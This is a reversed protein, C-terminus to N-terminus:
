TGLSERLPREIRAQPDAFCCYALWTPDNPYRDRVHQRARQMAEGITRGSTMEAYFARAFALAARDTVPWLTGVFGGCGLHVFQASWSGLRTLSFGLRGSHCSNFFILPAARRLAVAMKPSLEAVRLAGDEMLVASADAASSGAFEGHAILHLLDFEGAEFAKLVVSCRAPLLQYHSGSSELGRLVALEEDTSLPLCASTETPSGAQSAILPATGVMDLTTDKGSAGTRGRPALACIRNFSFRQAPPRGRLWHTLAYSQGWFDGEEFEGSAPNERYPKILEWPIHPEDSLVLVTRVNRRRITWYLDQLDRPLLQEFLGHGVGGLLRTVDEESADARHVLDALLGLRAQVWSSVDTKLDITGLDGDMVPLDGLEQLASFVVYQLRGPQGAFRHEFVKILLDPASPIPRATLNLLLGLPPMPRNTATNADIRAVIEPTLDLSGVPRGGQDFDIMVRGPGLKLGRLSFEVPPSSQEMPVDIEARGTGEIAFNEAAVSLRVKIALPRVEAQPLPSMFSVFLNTTWGGAFPRPQGQRTDEGSRAAPFLIVRLRYSEGVLAQDPFWIRAITTVGSVVSSREIAEEGQLPEAGAPHSAPSIPGAADRKRKGLLRRLRDKLISALEPLARSILARGTPRAIQSEARAEKEAEMKGAAERFARALEEASRPRKEPDKELCQMIVREMRPLISVRPNAERMPRPHESLHAALLAMRSEAPFPVTGTLLQYLIVGVSYLDSRFDVEHQDRDGWGGRIQEPSMYAPTGLLDGTSALAVDKNSVEEILKAVGFDTVKLNRGLPQGEVLMINSPKLDRHIIPKPKGTNKDVHSHAEQLVACLQDVISVILDLSLPEGEHHKLFEDLSQGSVFEMEIYGMSQTRNFEYVAVANPHDMRALMRAERQFRGWGREGLIEPKILKLACGRELLINDALWVEGMGGEGIKKMLRYKGLITEGQRILPSGKREGPGSPVLLVSPDSDSLAISEERSPPAKEEMSLSLLERFDQDLEQCVERLRRSVRFVYVHVLNTMMGLERAIEAAPRNRLLRQEFCTWARPSTQSKVEKVVHQLIQARYIRSWEKEMRTIDSATARLVQADWERLLIKHSARFRAQQLLVQQTLDFLGKQFEFNAPEYTHIKGLLRVCIDQFVDVADTESLGRKRLYALLIPQYVADFERWAEPDKGQLRFLLSAKTEEDSM